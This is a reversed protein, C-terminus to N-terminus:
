PATSNMSSRGPTSTPSACGFVERIVDPIRIRTWPPTLDIERGQFSLTLGGTIERVVHCTLAEFRSMQDEYDTFAEYWEMLTFEPNHTADIGENRFCSNLAFVKPFGGVIYRKLPLEMSVRLFVEQRARGVLFSPRARAGYRTGAPHGGQGVSELWRRGLSSSGPAPDFTEGIRSRHESSYRKLRACM